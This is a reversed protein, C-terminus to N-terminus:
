VNPNGLKMNPYLAILYHRIKEDRESESIYGASILRDIHLEAEDIELQTIENKLTSSM